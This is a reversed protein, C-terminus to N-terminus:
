RRSCCCGTRARFATRLPFCYDTERAAVIAQRLRERCVAFCQRSYAVYASALLLEVRMSELFTGELVAHLDSIEREAEDRAGEDILALVVPLAFWVRAWAVGVERAIALARRGEELAPKCHGEALAIMCRTNHLLGLQFLPMTTPDEALLDAHSKAEPLSGTLMAIHAGWWCRMRWGVRLGEEQALTQAQAFVSRARADDGCRLYHCALRPLWMVRDAASVNEREAVAGVSEVIWRGLRLDGTALSLGFLANGGFLKASDSVHAQMLAAIRMRLRPLAAHRPQRLSLIMLLIGLVHLETDSDAFEPATPLLATVRDIWADLAEHGASEVWYTELISAITQIQGLVDGAAEFARLVPLLANRSEVPSLALAARALWYGLWPHRKVEHEPIRGALGQLTRWRGESLLRPASSVTLGVADTWAANECYMDIAAQTDGSAELLRASDAHIRELEAHSVLRWAHAQLFGRFLAHYHYTPPDGERRHVFLHRRYLQDLIERAAPNGTLAQANEVSVSPLTATALLFHQVQPSVRSFIQSAFYDFLAQRAEVALDPLEESGRGRELLLTFGAAWGDALAHFRRVADVSSSGRAAAIQQAEGLTLRLADWSVLAVNENAIFRAYCDPPDRRSIVVLAMTPPVEGVADAILQHFREHPEVEQYNDLVVAAGSPLQSFLTRFFRRGFGSVDSLYEPTLAPLPRSGQRTYPRAAEGLYHFLTALDSDGPDVQYWVGKIGRADLWSSVLTTKGAGPPGVVCIASRASRAEDLEAFLRVRAIVRALRPRTLEALQRKSGRNSGAV